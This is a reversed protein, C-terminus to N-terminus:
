DRMEVIIWLFPHERSFRDKIVVFLEPKEGIVVAIGTGTVEMAPTVSFFGLKVREKLGRIIKPRLEPRIAKKAKEIHLERGRGWDYTRYTIDSAQQIEILNSDPGLAHVLGAPLGVFDGTDLEFYSLSDPGIQEPLTKEKFGAAIKGRSTFYWCETKGWPEGELKRATDDDPHVQVSLWDRTSIFKILLPFRNIKRGCFEEIFEGPYHLGDGSKLPTKMSDIDSLLWVEGIPEDSEVGYLENLKWNGWPRPSFVPESRLIM